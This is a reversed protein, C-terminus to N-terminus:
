CMCDMAYLVDKAKITKRNASDAFKAAKQGLTELFSGTLEALIHKAEVTIRYSNEGRGLPIGQGFAAVSSAMGIHHREKKALDVRARRIAEEAGRYKSNRVCEILLQKTVTKKKMMKLLNLCEVGLDKLMKEADEKARNVALASVRDIGGSGRLVKAVSTAHLPSSSTAKSTTKKGIAM